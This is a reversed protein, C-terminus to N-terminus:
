SKDEMWGEPALRARAEDEAGPAASIPFAAREWVVQYGDQGPLIHRKMSGDYLGFEGFMGGWEAKALGVIGKVSQALEYAASHEAEAAEIEPTSQRASADRKLTAFLRNRELSDPANLLLGPLFHLAGLREEASADREYWTLLAAPNSGHLAITTQLKALLAPANQPNPLDNVRARAAKLRESSQALRTWVEGQESVTGAGGEHVFEGLLGRIEALAAQGYDRALNAKLKARYEDSFTDNKEIADRRARYDSILRNLNAIKDM